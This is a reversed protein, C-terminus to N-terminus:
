FSASKARARSQHLLGLLLFLLLQCNLQFSLLRLLSPQLLLVPSLLSACHADIEYDLDQDRM